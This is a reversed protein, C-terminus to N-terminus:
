STPRASPGGIEKPIGEFALRETLAATATALTEGIPHETAATTAALAQPRPRHPRGRRGSWRAIAFRELAEEAAILEPTDTMALDGRRRGGATRGTGM